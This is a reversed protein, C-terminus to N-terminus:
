YGCEPVDLNYQYDQKLTELLAEVQEADKGWVSVLKPNPPATIKLPKITSQYLKQVSKAGLDFYLLTTKRMLIGRCADKLDAGSATKAKKLLFDLNTTLDQSTKDTFYGADHVGLQDYVYNMVLGHFVHNDLAKACTSISHLIEHVDYHHRLDISYKQNYTITDGGSLGGAGAGPDKPLIVYKISKYCKSLSVGTVERYIPYVQDRTVAVFADCDAQRSASLASCDITFPLDSPVTTPTLTPTPLIVQQTKTPAITATPTSIATSASTASLLPMQSPPISSPTVPLQGPLNCAFTILILVVISIVKNKM